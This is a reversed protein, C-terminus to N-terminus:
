VEFTQKQNPSTYIYDETGNSKDTPVYGYDLLKREYTNIIARLEGESLYDFHVGGPNNYYGLLELEQLSEPLYIGYKYANDWFESGPLPVFTHIAVENPRTLKIIELAELQQEYTGPLGVIWWTKIRLNNTKACNIANKIITTNTGKKITRLIENSGSEAGIAIKVCGSQKLALVLEDNINDARLQIIYQIPLQKKILLNCFRIRDAHDHFFMDDAWYLSIKGYKDVLFEMESIIREPDSMRPACGALGKSSCFMCNYICGRSSTISHHPYYNLSFLNRDIFPLKNLDVAETQHRYIINNNDIYAVGRLHNLADNDNNEISNILPLIVHEGEGIVVFDFGQNLAEEYYLTPHIGGAIIVVAPVNKKLTDLTQYATYASISTYSLGILDPEFDLIVDLINTEEMAMDFIKVSHGAEQVITGLIGIGLPYERYVRAGYEKSVNVFLVRM